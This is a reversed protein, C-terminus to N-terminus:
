SFWLARELATAPMAEARQRLEVDAAAAVGVLRHACSNRAERREHQAGRRASAQRGREVDDGGAGSVAGDREHVRAGVAREKRQPV